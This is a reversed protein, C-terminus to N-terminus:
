DRSYRNLERISKAIEPLKKFIASCRLWLKNPMAPFGSIVEGPNVDAHIGCKSSAIVGDGVNVRNAVGVQGALIVNNGLNAGGAIGVQSAMACDKGIIVGHGVQVLNDIKTGSDIFTEGVSPRDVTTGAGIEVHDGLIVKGTQPMKRWGNKTPIFGFGESGIVSNSQIICFHGLVTKRHIVSNAQLECGEGIQVHDYLVVGPHLICGSSIKCNRGIFSNAGISVNEGIEVDAEIVATKHIGYKVQDKPNLIELTEAFAVKPNEFTAWSINKTRIEKICDIGKPLLLASAKTADLFNLLYSNTELFSIQGKSAKNLSSAEKIEPNLGLSYDIIKAEGIKLIEILQSFLM